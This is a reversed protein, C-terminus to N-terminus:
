GQLARTQLVPIEEPVQPAPRPSDQRRSLWCKGNSERRDPRGHTLLIGLKTMSGFRLFRVKKEWRGEGRKREKKKLECVCVCVEAM